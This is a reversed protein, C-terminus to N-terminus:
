NGVLSTISHIPIFVVSRNRRPMEERIPDDIKGPLRADHRTM